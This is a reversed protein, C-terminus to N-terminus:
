DGIKKGDYDEKIEFMIPLHDSIKKNPHGNDNVLSKANVETIIKLSKDVFQNRLAPRIIVQDYLNWYTNNAKSGNYYYTGCPSEFDGLFNWMPNYFMYFEQGAVKRSKRKTDEYVPLGHFFQAGTCGIDYPNINFDGVVITNETCLERETDCIDTVIQNIVINRMEENGGYIQSPLHIGCLIYTNGIIQMSAYDSQRGPEINNLSAIIKLRNCGITICEKMRKGGLELEDILGKADDKYEALVIISINNEFVLEKIFMNINESNATNWFLIKM